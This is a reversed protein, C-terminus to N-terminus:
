YGGKRTYLRVELEKANDQMASVLTANAPPDFLLKVKIYIYTKVQQLLNKDVTITENTVSYDGTDEQKIVPISHDNDTFFNTWTESSGTIIFGNVPGIGMQNLNSIVTNIHIIIDPDFATMDSPLGLLKKIGNLISEDAAM